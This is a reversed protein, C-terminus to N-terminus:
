FIFCFKIGFWRVGLREVMYCQRVLKQYLCFWIKGKLFFFDLDLLDLVVDFDLENGFIQYKFVKVVINKLFLNLTSKM